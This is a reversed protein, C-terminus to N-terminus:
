ENQRVWPFLIPTSKPASIMAAALREIAPHHYTCFTRVVPVSDPIFSATMSLPVFWAAIRWRAPSTWQARATSVIRSDWRQNPPQLPSM